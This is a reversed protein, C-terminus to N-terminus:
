NIEITIADPEQYYILLAKPVFPNVPYKSYRKINKNKPSVRISKENKRFYIEPYIEGVSSNYRYYNEGAEDETLYMGASPGGVCLFKSKM